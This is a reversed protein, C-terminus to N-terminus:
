GVRRMLDLINKTSQDVYARNENLESSSSSTASETLKKEVKDSVDNKALEEKIVKYLKKSEDLSIAEDFRKLISKKEAKNTSNETFM